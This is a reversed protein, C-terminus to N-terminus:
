EDNVLGQSTGCSPACNFCCMCIHPQVRTRSSEWGLTAIPVPREKPRETDIQECACGAGTGLLPRARGIHGVDLRATEGPDTETTQEWPCAPAHPGITPVLTEGIRMLTLGQLRLGGRPTTLPAEATPTACGGLCHGVVNACPQEGTRPRGHATPPM